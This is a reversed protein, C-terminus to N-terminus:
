ARKRLLVDYGDSIARVGQADQVLGGSIWKQFQANGRYSPDPHAATGCRDGNAFVLCISQWPHAGCVRADDASGDAIQWGEPVHVPQEGDWVITSDDVKRRHLTM